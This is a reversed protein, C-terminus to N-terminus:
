AGRQQDAMADSTRDTEIADDYTDFGEAIGTARRLVYASVAAGTDLGAAHFRAALPRRGPDLPFGMNDRVGHHPPLLGTFMSAHSPLTWNSTAFVDRVARGSSAMDRVVPSAGTTAGYPEFADARATDLVLLVVNPRDAM